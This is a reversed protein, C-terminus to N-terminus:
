ANSCVQAGGASSWMEGQVLFGLRSSRVRDREYEGGFVMPGGVSPAAYGRRSGDGGVAGAALVRITAVGLGGEFAKDILRKFDYGSFRDPVRYGASPNLLNFYAQVIDFRKSKIVKHLADTEGL